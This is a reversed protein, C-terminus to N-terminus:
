NSTATLIIETAKV